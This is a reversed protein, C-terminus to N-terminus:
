LVVEDFRKYDLKKRNGWGRAYNDPGTAFKFASSTLGGSIWQIYWKGTSHVFGYYQNIDDLEDTNAAQYEEITNTNNIKNIIKPVPRDQIAKVLDGLNDLSVRDPIEIAKIAEAVIRLEKVEQHFSQLIDLKELLDDVNNFAVGKDMTERLSEIKKQLVDSFDDGTILAIKQPNRKQELSKLKEERNM